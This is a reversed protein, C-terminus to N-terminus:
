EPPGQALKYKEGDKVLLKWKVLKSLADNFSGGRPSYGTSLSIDSKTLTLPFKEAMKRIIKQQMGDLKPLWINIWPFSTSDQTAAIIKPRGIKNLKKDILSEIEQETIMKVTKGGTDPVSQFINARKLSPLIFDVLQLKFSEYVSLDENLWYIEAHLEDIHTNKVEIIKQMTAIDAMRMDVEDDLENTRIEARDLAELTKTLRENIETMMGMQSPKDFLGPGLSSDEGEVFKSADPIIMKDEEILKFSRAIADTVPKKRGNLIGRVEDVDIEGLAVKRGMEPDIGSPLVYVHYFKQQLSVMFHGIKLNMIQEETINRKGLNDRVNSVENKEQQYGMIWNSCQKLLAKSVSTTEQTDIWLYDGVAAGERIMRLATAKVPTNRGEPIFKHAEPIIVVTDNLNKLVYGIVSEIVLQQMEDAMGVLNLVNFGPRLSLSESFAYKKMEPLIIEFYAALNEYISEDLSRRADAQASKINQYVQQLSRAGKCVKIIWSREFKMKESMTAELIASVYQWDILSGKKQEKFYPPIERQGQFGSEGRKTLFAVARAKSREVLAELATTKGSLQTMGTVVTHHFSLSVEKGTGIEYGLLIENSNM